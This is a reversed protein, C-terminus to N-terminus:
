LLKMLDESSVSEWAEEVTVRIELSSRQRGEGLDLYKDKIFYKMQNWVSEIPNLDPSSPPWEITSIGRARLETIKMSSSHPPVNDQMSLKRPRRSAVDAIRPVIRKCYQDSDTTDWLKEWFLRAAKEFGVFSGWFMWGKRKRFKDVTCNYDM